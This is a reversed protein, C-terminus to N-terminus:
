NYKFLRDTTKDFEGLYGLNEQGKEFSASVQSMVNINEVGKKFNSTLLSLAELAQDYEQREDLTLSALTKQPESKFQTFYIGFMLVAVAAVSIWRYLAITKKPKLSVDKTFQENQTQAFYSFLPKFAELHPAVTEQSFYDRLQQEEQLTTEANDYKEILKEINNLVM